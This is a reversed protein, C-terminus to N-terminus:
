YVTLIKRFFVKSSNDIYENRVRTVFVPKNWSKAQTTELTLITCPTIGADINNFEKYGNSLKKNAFRLYNKAYRNAEATSSVQFPFDPACILDSGAQKYSGKYKGKSFSCSGFLRRTNLDFVDGDDLVLTKVPSKDEFARESYVILTQDFVLFAYGELLCLRKLFLADSIDKQIQITYKKNEVSYLKVKLKHKKALDKVIREFSIDHWDKSTVSFMSEPVSCATLWLFGDQFDLESVYMNGSDVDNSKIRILDNKAPKWNDWLKNEDAFLIRLTDAEGEAHMDHVCKLVEVSDTINVNKYFVQM